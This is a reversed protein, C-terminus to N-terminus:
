RLFEIVKIFALHNSILDLLPLGNKLDVVNTKELFRGLKKIPNKHITAVHHVLAKLSSIIYKWDIVNIYSCHDNEFRIYNM